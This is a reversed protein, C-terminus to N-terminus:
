RGEFRNKEVMGLAVIAISLSKSRFVVPLRCHSDGTKCVRHVSLFRHQMPRIYQQGKIKEIFQSYSTAPWERDGASNFTLLPRCRHINGQAAHYLSIFYKYNFYRCRGGEIFKNCTVHLSLYHGRRNWTLSSNWYGGSILLRPFGRPSQRSGRTQVVLLEPVRPFRCWGIVRFHLM